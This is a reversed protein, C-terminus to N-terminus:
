APQTQQSSVSAAPAARTGILAPIRMPIRVSVRASLSTVQPSRSACLTMAMELFDDDLFKRASPPLVRSASAGRARIDLIQMHVLQLQRPQHKPAGGGVGGRGHIDLDGGFSVRSLSPPQTLCPPIIARSTKPIARSQRYTKTQRNGEKELDVM